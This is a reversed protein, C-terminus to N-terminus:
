NKGFVSNFHEMDSDKFNGMEMFGAQNTFVSLFELEKQRCSHCETQTFVWAVEVTTDLAM